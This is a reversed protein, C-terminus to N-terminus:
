NKTKMELAFSKNFITAPIYGLIVGLIAGCFIDIPFHVGVYVQAYSIVAAWLFLLAWKASVSKKFTTFIFMAAAFHNVAHSSTFSSSQPCYAVLFRINGALFPDHCPRIRIFNEKILTSSVYDSLMVNILFFLVWIWGNIKFNLVTFVVLFFYLPVWVTPERIFPFFVDFFSNHWQGNMKAFLNYDFQKIVDPLFSANKIEMLIMIAFIIM